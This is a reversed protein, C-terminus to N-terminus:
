LGSSFVALQSPHSLLHDFSPDHDTIKTPWFDPDSIPNRKESASGWVGFCKNDLSHGFCMLVAALEDHCKKRQVGRRLRCISSDSSSFRFSFIISSTSPSLPFSPHFHLSFVPFFFFSSLFFTFLFELSSSSFIFTHLQSYLLLLFFLLFSSFSFPLSSPFLFSCVPFSTHFLHFPFPSSLFPLFPLFFIVHLSFSSSSFYFLPSFFLLPLILPLPSSFHTICHICCIFQVLQVPQIPDMIQKVSVSIPSQLPALSRESIMIVKAGKRDKWVEERGQKGGNGGGILKMAEKAWGDMCSKNFSFPACWLPLSASTFFFNYVSTFLHVSTPLLM